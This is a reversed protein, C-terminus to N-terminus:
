LGPLGSAYVTAAAALDATSVRNRAGAQECPAPTPVVNDTGRRQAFDKKAQFSM